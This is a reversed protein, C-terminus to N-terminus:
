RHLGRAADPSVGANISDDDEKEYVFVLLHYGLGYVKQEASSFPCSSQPQRISTVKLDVGLDPLDIGRAANGPRYDYTGGLYEHFSREVYTGVAKGDTTGYLEPISKESLEAAFDAAAVRLSALDLEM